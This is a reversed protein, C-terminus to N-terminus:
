KFDSYLSLPQTPKYDIYIFIDKYPVTCFIVDEFSTDNFNIKAYGIGM